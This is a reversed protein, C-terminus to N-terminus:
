TMTEMWGGWLGHLAPDTNFSCKMGRFQLGDFIHSLHEEFYPQFYKIIPDGKWHFNIAERGVDVQCDNKRNLKGHVDVHLLPM